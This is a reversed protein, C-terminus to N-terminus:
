FEEVMAEVMHNNTNGRDVSIGGLKRLLWGLPGWFYEKKIFVRGNTCCCWLYTAGITFDLSSTHPAVVFVCREMEPRTGKEPLVLRWGLLKVIIIWLKKM